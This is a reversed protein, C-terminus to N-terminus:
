EDEAEPEPAIGIEEPLASEDSPASSRAAEVASKAAALEARMTEIKDDMEGVKAFLEAFLEPPDSRNLEYFTRGIENFVKQQDELEGNILVSLKAINTYCRATTTSRDYVDRFANDEAINKAKRGLAKITGKLMSTYNAM